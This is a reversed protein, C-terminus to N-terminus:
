AAKQKQSADLDDFVFGVVIETLSSKAAFTFGLVLGSVQVRPGLDAQGEYDLCNCLRILIAQAPSESIQTFGKPDM